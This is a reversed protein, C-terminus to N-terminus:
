ISLFYMFGLRPDCSCIQYFDHFAYDVRFVLFFFFCENHLIVLCVFFYVLLRGDGTEVLNGLWMVGHLRYNGEYEEM